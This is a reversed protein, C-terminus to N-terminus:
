TKFGFESLGMSFNNKVLDLSEVFVDDYTLKKDSKAILLNATRQLEKIHAGTFKIDHCLKGYKSSIDNNFYIDILRDIELSSPYDFKYKRNFRVPRNAIASDLKDLYNTTAIVIMNNEQETIGNLFQLFESIESNHIERSVAFSDVDELIVICDKICENIFSQLDNFFVRHTLYIVTYGDDIAERAIASCILSKGVGPIGHFIIGNSSRLNKLYFTTNDRIDNKMVDDMIVDDFKINPVNKIQIYEKDGYYLLKNRYPNDNAIKDYIYKKLDSIDEHSSFDMQSSNWNIKFFCVKDNFVFAVTGIVLIDKFKKYDYEFPLKSNNAVEFHKSSYVLENAIYAKVYFSPVTKASIVFSKIGDSSKNSIMLEDSNTNMADSSKNSIVFKNYNTYMADFSDELDIQESIACSKM